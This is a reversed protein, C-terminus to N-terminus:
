LKKPNGNVCFTRGTYPDLPVLPEDGGGPDLPVLEECCHKNGPPCCTDGSVSVMGSPCCFRTLTGGVKRAVIRNSPCCIRKGNSFSCKKGKKCCGAGCKPRGDPCAAVCKDNACVQGPNCCEACCPKSGKGFLLECNPQCEGKCCEGTYRPAQCCLEVAVGDKDKKGTPCLKSPSPCAPDCTPEAPTGGCVYRYPSGCCKDPGSAGQVLSPCARQGQKCEGSRRTARARSPAAAPVVIGIVSAGLLRLAEHRPLPEVLARALDDLFRAGSM